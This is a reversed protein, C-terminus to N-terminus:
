NSREEEDITDWSMKQGIKGNCWCWITEISIICAGGSHSYWLHIILFINGKVKLMFTWWGVWTARLSWFLVHSQKKSNIRTPSFHSFSDWVKEFYGEREFCFSILTEMEQVHRSKSNHWLWGRSEKLVDLTMPEVSQSFCGM